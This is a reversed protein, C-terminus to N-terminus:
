PGDLEFVFQNYPETRWALHRTSPSVAFLPSFTRVSVRKGDESLELIRLWGDGGNGHWGGGDTQTDFLMQSVSKGLHNKDQRFGVNERPDNVGAIHGCIVIRINDAPFVLKDWIAQGYNADKLAYNEKEIRANGKALSTIFSHTLLIVTHDKYADRAVLERAWALAPDSPAFELSLILLKRGQPTALAYAANELTKVGAHNPSCEVLVGKWVSNREAPFYKSFQTDRNEAGTIGYDHNGTTLIYPIRNDLREFARSVASWQQTSSQDSHRGDPKDVGNDQVLDGTHLVALVRLPKLNEAIWATMLECIGQNRGFKVYTQTDPILLISCANPEALRPPAYAVPEEAFALIACVFLLVGVTERVVRIMALSFLNTRLNRAIM